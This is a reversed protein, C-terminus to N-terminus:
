EIVGHKRLWAILEFEYPETIMAGRDVGRPSGSLPAPDAYPLDEGPHALVITPVSKFGTWDLVRKEAQPNHDILITRYHVNQAAFVREAVKQFPCFTSRGYMVIEKDTM